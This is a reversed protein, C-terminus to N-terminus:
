CHTKSSLNKCPEEKGISPKSGALTSSFIRKYQIVMGYEMVFTFWIVTLKACPLSLGALIWDFAFFCPM